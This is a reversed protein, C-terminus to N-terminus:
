EKTITEDLNLLVRSVATWAALDVPTAGKPVLAQADKAEKGRLGALDPASLWGDRLRVEQKGLFTLLEGSEGNTPERGLCRRFAYVLRQQNTGGGERLTKSALARASEMFLPENLMTLAQLPTNSRARRVCSSDGNPADFTQLMPYPVSRYRFTYLARRYREPGKDERWIKVSYSAPPVFLFAPAPPYVSPGGFEPNLLGSASLAIDRVIEADVRFRPGRALLRNYPDKELLEPPVDSAQRYVASTAILRQMHKVDWGSQMFEVALWDLLEPHTPPESQTGLNEATAVIGTGFWAQWERNVFSRATTPSDPAVMWKAFTLRTPPEGAPLPNLFAPVGPTVVQAPKLFDGRTLLHTERLKDRETIVLQSAGEPHERWLAAIRANAEKWEPVTTRWYSFVTWQQEPTREARPIALIKRVNAPLPDATADPATTISLRFRGLNYVLNEDREFGGHKQALAFTLVEGGEYSVPKEANFVAKRAQNRQGPGADIGWATRDDGDIAFQVPGLIRPKSSKDDPDLQAESQSFDATARVIKVPAAKAPDSAPAAEVGFETLACLGKYSRGPGGMPLNADTLLELRFATINRVDTKVTMKVTHGGPAFGQALFSGDDLPTYKQGSTSIADVTPRVVTWEPQDAKVKDEWEAMRQEWHSTHHQLTGEIERIQRFIDAKKMLEAPSYVPMSAENSDNLFAFMRYYEEHKIPDFKHTHCQACQITIGLINKGVADMRDFMAEMRFQEPDIGGEENTMSNRLFGTAVLEDQTPHPLEDGAIQDIVFQDYPLNKNFAAVVWDRYAWVQRQKDKEFGDSDAYRAGDLWIRGWREGYHPSSLLRDVQKSYAEPSKDHVFADIEEPTPPLGILDLSLRRLLTTRDAEHSPALGEKELRALIFNDIPNRPWAADRVSPVAPRVPPVFAWHKKVEANAADASDPWVAGADIWQKIRDIEAQQLKGGMPMRTHEGLGAVRQYLESGAANGPQIAKALAIKKSDLRLGGMQTKAGHCNSCSKAFIPQIDRVFDVAAAPNTAAPPSQGRLGTSVVLAGCLGVLGAVTLASKKM